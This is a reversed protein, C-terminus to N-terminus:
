LKVLIMMMMMKIQRFFMLCAAVTQSHLGWSPRAYVCASVAARGTFCIFSDKWRLRFSYLGKNKCPRLQLPRCMVFSVCVIMLLIDRCFFQWSRPLTTKWDCEYCIRVLKMAILIHLLKWYHKLQHRQCIERFLGGTFCLNNHKVGCFVVVLSLRWVISVGAPRM